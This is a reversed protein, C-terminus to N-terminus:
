IVINLALNTYQRSDVEYVTEMGDVKGAGYVECNEVLFRGFELRKGGSFRYIKEGKELVISRVIQHYGGDWENGANMGFAMEVLLKQIKDRYIWNELFGLENKEALKLILKELSHEKGENQYYLYVLSIYILPLNSDIKLLNRYFCTNLFGAPRVASAQCLADTVQINEINTGRIGELGFRIGTEKGAGLLVTNEMPEDECLAVIEIKQSISPIHNKTRDM